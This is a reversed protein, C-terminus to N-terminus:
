IRIKGKGQILIREENKINHEVILHMGKFNRFHDLFVMSREHNRDAICLENVNKGEKISELAKRNCTLGNM